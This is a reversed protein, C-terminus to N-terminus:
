SQVLTGLPVSCLEAISMCQSRTCCVVSKRPGRVLSLAAAKFAACAGEHGAGARLMADDNTARKAPLFGELAAMYCRPINQSKRQELKHKHRWLCGLKTPLRNNRMTDETQVM